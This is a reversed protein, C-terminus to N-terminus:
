RLNRQFTPPHTNHNWLHFFIRGINNAANIDRHIYLTKHISNLCNPCVKFETSKKGSFRADKLRQHCHCCCQSTGYEDVDVVGAYRQLRKKLGQCPASAYGFGTTSENHGFAIVPYENNQHPSDNEVIQRCCRDLAKYERAYTQLRLRRTTKSQFYPLSAQLWHHLSKMYAYWDNLQVVKGTPAKKMDNLGYRRQRKRQKDRLRKTGRWNNFTANSIKM